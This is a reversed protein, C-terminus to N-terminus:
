QLEIACTVPENQDEGSGSDCALTNACQPCPEEGRAIFDDCACTGAQGYNWKNGESYCMTCDPEICCRYQGEEKAMKIGYSRLKVMFDHMGGAGMLRYIFFNPYFAVSGLFGVILIIAIILVLNKM